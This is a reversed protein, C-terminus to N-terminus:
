YEQDPPLPVYVGRRVFRQVARQNRAVIYSLAQELTSPVTRLTSKSPRTLHLELLEDVTGSKLTGIDDLPDSDMGMKAPFLVTLKEAQPEMPTIAVVMTHPKEASTHIVEVLCEDSQLYVLSFLKDLHPPITYAFLFTAGSQSVEGRLADAKPAEACRAEIQGQELMILDDVDCACVEENALNIRLVKLVLLLPAL